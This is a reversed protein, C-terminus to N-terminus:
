EADPERFLPRLDHQGDSLAAELQVALRPTRAHGATRGASGSAIRNRLPAAAPATPRPATPLRIRACPDAPLLGQAVAWRTVAFLVQAHRRVTHVALGRERILWGIWQEVDAPSLGAIPRRDFVPHISTRCVSQWLRVTPESVAAGRDTIMQACVDTVSPGHRRGATPRASGILRSHRRGDEGRWTMRSRGSGDDIVYSM